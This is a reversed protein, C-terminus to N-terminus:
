SIRVVAAGTGAPAAAAVPRARGALDPRGLEVAARGAALARDHDAARPRRLATAHSTTVLSSSSACQRAM